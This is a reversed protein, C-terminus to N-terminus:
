YAIGSMRPSWDSRAGAGPDIYSPNAMEIYRLDDTLHKRVEIMKGSPDQTDRQQPTLVKRRNNKLQYVLEPCKDEFIHIRSTKKMAGNSGEVNFAKLGANVMEFGIDHDKKADEFYPCTVGIDPMSMFQEYRTQFNPQEADDNTGKGFARATYDIVRNHVVEDYPKGDYVNEPNEKSELWRVTQVYDKIRIVPEDDPCPGAKGLLRGNDWRFSAKSPWLERYYWRDGWPDTASWLFAHPVSPHPDLAMRRTWKPNIPFSPELTAEADLNFILRGLTAEAEIEFERLYLNPDTMKGYQEFAWPPLKRDIAPVYIPEGKAKEPDATYHLKLVTISHQNRHVEIGPHPFSSM